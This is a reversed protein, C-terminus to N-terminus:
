IFLYKTISRTLGIVFRDDHIKIKITNGALVDVVIVTDEDFFPPAMREEQGIDVTCTCCLM